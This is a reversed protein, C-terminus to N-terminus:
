RMAGIRRICFPCTVEDNEDTEGVTRLFIKRIRMCLAAGTLVSVAHTRMGRESGRPYTGPRVHRVEYGSPCPAGRPADYAMASWRSAGCYACVQTTQLEPAACTLCRRGIVPSGAPEPV